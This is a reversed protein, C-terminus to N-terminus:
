PTVLLDGVNAVGTVSSLTCAQVTRELTFGGDSIGFALVRGGPAGFFSGTFRAEGVRSVVLGGAPTEAVWQPDRCTEAGLNLLTVARTTPDIRALFRPGAPQYALEFNNLM